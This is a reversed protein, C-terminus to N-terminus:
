SGAPQEPKSDSDAQKAEASINEAPSQEQPAAPETTDSSDPTTGADQNPTESSGAEPADSAANTEAKAPEVQTKASEAEPKKKKLKSLLPQLKDLLPKFKAALGGTSTSKEPIDGGENAESKEPAETALEDLALKAAKKKKVVHNIGGIIAALLLLGVIWLKKALAIWYLKSAGPPPKKAKLAINLYNAAKTPNPKKANYYYYALAYNAWPNKRDIRFLRDGNRKIGNLDKPEKNLLAQVMFELGEESDSAESNEQLAEIIEEWKEKKQLQKIKAFLADFSKGANEGDEEGEEGEEGSDEGKDAIQEGQSAIKQSLEISESILQLNSQWAQQWESILPNKQLIKFSQYAKSEAEKVRAIKVEAPKAHSAAKQATGLDRTAKVETMAEVLNKLTKFSEPTAKEVLERADLAPPPAPAPTVPQPYDEITKEVPLPYSNIPAEEYRVEPAPLQELISLPDQAMTMVSILLLLVALYFGLKM